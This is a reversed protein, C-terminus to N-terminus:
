EDFNVFTSNFRVRRENNAVGTVEVLRRASFLLPSHNERELFTCGRSMIVM